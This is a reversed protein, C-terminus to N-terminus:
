DKKYIEFDKPSDTYYGEIENIATLIDFLWAKLENDM